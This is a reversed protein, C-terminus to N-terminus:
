RAEAFLEGCIECRIASIDPERGRIRIKRPPNCQCMLVVGNRGYPGGRSAEFTGPEWKALARNLAELSARYYTRTGTGLEVKDFGNAGLQASLGLAEAADKFPRGHYRGESSKTPPTISHAALHLLDTLLEAATINPGDQGHPRLNVSVVPTPLDWGVTVCSSPVGPTLDWVVSPVKPAREQVQGWSKELARVV